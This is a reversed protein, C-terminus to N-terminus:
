PRPSFTLRGAQTITAPLHINNKMCMYMAYMYMDYMYMYTLSTHVMSIRTCKYMYMKHM